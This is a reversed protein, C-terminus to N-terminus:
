GPRDRHRLHLTCSFDRKSMPWRGVGCCTFTSITSSIGKPWTMTPGRACRRQLLLSRPRKRKAVADLEGQAPHNPVDLGVVSNESIFVAEARGERRPRSTASPASVM